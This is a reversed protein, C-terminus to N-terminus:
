WLEKRLWYKAHGPPYDDLQGIVRYGLKEYFGRAQFDFTSLTSYHCGRRIADIEAAGMLRRGWGGGRLREDVWLLHITLWGWYMHGTLGAVLTGDGHRLFVNLPCRAHAPDRDARFHEVSLANSALLRADISMEAVANADHEVTIHYTGDDMDPNYCNHDADVTGRMRWLLHVVSGVVRVDSLGFGM